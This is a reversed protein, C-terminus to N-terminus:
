TMMQFMLLTLSALCKTGSAIPVTKETQMMKKIKRARSRTALDM